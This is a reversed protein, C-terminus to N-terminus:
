RFLGEVFLEPDFPFFDEINEGIGIYKVPINMEKVIPFICGGKASGDMKTLIIGTLDIFDNFIKAQVLGNLGTTSDMIIFVEDPIINGVNKLVKKIKIFENMLNKKTHLRGATDVILYDYNRSLASVYSDHIVAAADGGQEGKVIDLSYREAWIQLQDIAAARYTDAASLLVKKNKKKLYYAIKAASTTKGTGNVGVLLIVVPKKLYERDDEINLIRVMKDKLNKLIDEGESKKIIDLFYDSLQPGIDASLLIEEIEDRLEDTFGSSSINLVTKIKESFNNRTKHLKATIRDLFEM